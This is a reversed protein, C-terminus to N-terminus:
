MEFTAETQEIFYIQSETIRNYQFKLGLKLMEFIEKEPLGLINSLIIIAEEGADIQNDSLPQEKM